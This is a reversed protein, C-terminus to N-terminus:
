KTIGAKSLYGGGVDVIVPLEEGASITHGLLKHTLRAKGLGIRTDTKTLDVQGTKVDSNFTVEVEEGFVGQGFVFTNEGTESAKAILPGFQQTGDKLTRIFYGSPITTEPGVKNPDLDVGIDAIVAILREGTDKPMSAVFLYSPVSNGYHHSFSSPSADAVLNLAEGDKTILSMTGTHRSAPYDSVLLQLPFKSIAQEQQEATLTPMQALVSQKLLDALQQTPPNDGLDVHFDFRLDNPQSLRESQFSMRNNADLVSMTGGTDQAFSARPAGVLKEAVVEGTEADWVKARLADRAEDLGWQPNKDTRVLDLLVHYRKGTAPDTMDFTHITCEYRLNTAPQFAKTGVKGAEFRDGAPGAKVEGPATAATKGGPLLGGAASPWAVISAWGKGQV